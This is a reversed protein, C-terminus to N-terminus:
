PHRSRRLGQHHRRPSRHAAQPPAITIFEPADPLKPGYTKPNGSPAAGPGAGDFPVSYIRKDNRSGFYVTGAADLAIGSLQNIGSAVVVAAPGAPLPTYVIAGTGGSGIFMGGAAVLLHVPGSIRSTGSGGTFQWQLRGNRDYGKIENAVEDAVYLLTGDHALGRVSNQRSDGFACALGQPAPVLRSQCAALSKAASAVFTGPCFGGSPYTTQLYAALMPTAPPPAPPPQPMAFPGVVLNTDQCSVFWGSGSPDFAIDFPHNMSALADVSAVVDVFAHQGQPGRTAQFRLVQSTSKSGSVVWLYGDPAFSVARLEKLGAPATM